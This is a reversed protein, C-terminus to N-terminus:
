RLLRSRSSSCWSRETTLSGPSPRGPAPPSWRAPSPPPHPPPAPHPPQASLSATGTGEGKWGRGPTGKCRWRRTQHAPDPSSPRPRRRQSSGPQAPLHQPPPAQRAASGRPAPWLRSESEGPGWAVGVRRCGLYHQGSQALPQLLVLVLHPRPGTSPVLRPRPTPRVRSPQGAGDTVASFMPASARTRSNRRWSKRCGRRRGQSTGEGACAMFGKRSPRLGARLEPILSTGLTLCTVRCSWDTILGLGLCLAARWGLSLLGQHLHVPQDDTHEQLLIFVDVQLPEGM